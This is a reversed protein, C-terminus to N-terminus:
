NKKQCYELIEGNAGKFLFYYLGKEWLFDLFNIETLIEVNKSKLNEYDKKIDLSTYAIHGVTISDVNEEFLEYTIDDNRIYVFRKNSKFDGIVKFGLYNIYYDLAETLSPVKLNIHDLTM